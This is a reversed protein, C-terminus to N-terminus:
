NLIINVLSVIDQVNIAGDENLDAACFQEDNPSSSGLVYSVVSVIDQVNIASDSNVDGALGCSTGIEVNLTVNDYGDSFVIEAVSGGSVGEARFTVGGLYDHSDPVMTWAMDEVFVDHITALNNDADTYTVELFGNDYVANSLVPANNGDQSQSSMVLVGPNTTDLVEIAIDLGNLGAEVTTGLLVVGNFSNPWPGWDADNILYSLDVSGQLDNGTTSYQFDETLVSFGGVEGTSLDGDIKYLAPYLQGFGGSGYGLAYATNSSAADPNVIAIVYLYWPGFLGGENCCNGNLRISGYIRNDSYTGKLSIIDQSSPADGSDDLGLIAYLNSAPPWQNSQNYPSQSVTMQGFTLGLSGSDVSGSLYWDVSEGGSTQTTTGWTTEFGPQNLPAVASNEIWTNQNDTSVFVSASTNEAQALTASLDAHTVFSSTPASSALNSLLDENLQKIEPNNIEKKIQMTKQWITEFAKELMLDIQEQTPQQNNAFVFTSSILSIIIYNKM